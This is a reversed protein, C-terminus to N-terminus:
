NCDWKCIHDISTYIEGDIDFARNSVIIGHSSYGGKDVYLASNTDTRLGGARMDVKTWM